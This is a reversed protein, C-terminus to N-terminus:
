DGKTDSNDANKGLSTETVQRLLSRSAPPPDSSAEPKPADPQKAPVTKAVAEKKATTKRTRTQKKTQANQLGVQDKSLIPHKLVPPDPVLMKPERRSLAVWQSAEPSEVPQTVQQEVEPQVVQDVVPPEVPTVIPQEVPVVVPPEVPQVVQPMVQQAVPQVTPQPLITTEQVPMPEPIEMEAFQQEVVPAPAHSQHGVGDIIDCEDIFDLRRIIEAEEEPTITTFDYGLDYEDENLKEVAQRAKRYLVEERPADDHLGMITEHYTAEATPVTIYFDSGIQARMNPTEEDDKTRTVLSVEGEQVEALMKVIALGLGSGGAMRSGTEDVRFFAQFVKEAAPKPIGPGQDQVKITVTTKFAQIFVWIQTNEYSYKIANNILNGVMQEMMSRNGYVHPMKATLCEFGITINKKKAEERQKRVVGEVVQEIRYNGMEVKEKNNEIQSLFTLNQIINKLREGEENIKMVDSFIQDPSKERLGWDILSESYGTITALPTKLEHSVTSVFLQRQQEQRAMKTVDELVVIWARLDSQPFYPKSFHFQIVRNRIEERTTISEIKENEQSEEDTDPSKKVDSITEGYVKLDAKIKPDTIFTEVFEFFSKPLDEVRLRKLCNKNNYILIGSGSFMAVGMQVINLVSNSVGNAANLYRLNKKEKYVSARMLFYVLIGFIIGGSVLGIFLMPVPELVRDWVALKM